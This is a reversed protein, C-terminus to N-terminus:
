MHYLSIVYSICVYMFLLTDISVPICAQSEMGWLHFGLESLHSVDHRDDGRRADALSQHAAAWPHFHCKPSSMGRYIWSVKLFITSVACSYLKVIAISFSAPKSCCWCQPWVLKPWFALATSIRSSLCGRDRYQCKKQCLLILKYTCGNTLLCYM